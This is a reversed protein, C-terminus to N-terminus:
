FVGSIDPESLSHLPSTEPPAFIYYDIHGTSRLVPFHLLTYAFLAFIIIYTWTSSPMFFHGGGMCCCVMDTINM